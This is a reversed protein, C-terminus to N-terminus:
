SWHAPQSQVMGPDAGPPPTYVFTGRALIAEAGGVEAVRRRQDAKARLDVAAPDVVQRLKADLEAAKATGTGEEILDHREDPDEALHFLQAAMGVHYILKWDGERIMFSANPSYAAHYEAFLTREREEGRITPWLSRGLLEADPPQVPAGGGEVLTPFLDVHSVLERRVEGEPIGPGAMILPVGVSPEYFCSKGFLGQHGNMEGHDSTYLVRTNDLLDLDEVAQLVQGIQEDLHTILGLNGALVRRAMAETIDRYAAVNRIHRVAPHEPREGPAFRAPLPMQDEPYLNYLREPVSFPPHVTPYSVFLSFPPADKRRAREELWSIARATVVRDFDQYNSTGIGSDKAYLDWQGHRVPEAADCRLLMVLGGVGDLIHMPVIEQSFGNDDETSRFHLKGFSVVDHGAARLRHMWSEYQGHYVLANDWCGTQHPYRGTAISARAPCCLPSASYARDFRVGRAALRDLNPTQAWPHGYCGALARAHNDSQFYILNAPATM